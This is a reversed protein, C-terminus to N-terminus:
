LPNSLDLMAPHTLIVDSFSNCQIARLRGMRGALASIRWLQPLAKNHGSRGSM